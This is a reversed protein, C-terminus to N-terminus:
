SGGKYRERCPPKQVCAAYVDFCLWGMHNTSFHKDCVARKLRRWTSRANNRLTHVSCLCCASPLQRLTNAKTLQIRFYCNNVQSATIFERGTHNCDLWLMCGRKFIVALSPTSLSLHVLWEFFSHIFFDKKGFCCKLLMIKPSPCQAYIFAADSTCCRCAFNLVHRWM